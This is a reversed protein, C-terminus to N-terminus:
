AGGREPLYCSCGHRFTKQYLWQRAKNDDLEEATRLFSLWRLRATLPLGRGGLKGITVGSRSLEDMRCAACPDPAPACLDGCLHFAEASPNCTERVAVAEAEPPAPPFSEAHVSRCFGDILPCRDGMVMVEYELEPAGATVAAIEEPRLFRPLVVRDAGLDRWFAAGEPNVTVTLLSVTYQFDFRERLLMLLGPDRLIVGDGGCRAWLEAIRLLEPLQGESVRGNLTLHLPLGRSRATEAASQLADPDAINARGQRRSASDHNGYLAQWRADQYGCYLEDAGSEALMPIEGAENVPVAYRM